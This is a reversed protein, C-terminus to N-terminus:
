RVLVNILICDKKKKKELTCLPQRQRRRDAHERAIKVKRIDKRARQKVKRSDPHEPVEVKAAGFKKVRVKVM